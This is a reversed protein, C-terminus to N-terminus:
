QVVIKTEAAYSYRLLRCSHQVSRMISAKSNLMSDSSVLARLGASVPGRLVVVSCTSAEGGGKEGLAVVNWRNRYRDLAKLFVILLSMYSPGFQNGLM